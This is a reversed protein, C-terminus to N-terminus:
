VNGALYIRVQNFEEFENLDPWTTAEKTTVLNYGDAQLNRIRSDALVVREAKDRFESLLTLNDRDYLIDAATIIELGKVPMAERVEVRVQNLDANVEIAHRSAPDIDVAIVKGAGAMAAAIAVVGSGSGVDILTKGKVLEPHDLLYRALVQGSAWCFCWYAPEAVVAQAQDHTLPVEMSQPDFLYLQIEPALSLRTAILRGNPLTEQLRKELATALEDIPM